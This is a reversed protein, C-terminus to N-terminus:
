FFQGLFVLINLLFPAKKKCKGGAPSPKYGEKARIKASIIGM